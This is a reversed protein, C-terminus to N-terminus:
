QWGAFFAQGTESRALGWFAETIAVLASIDAGTWQKESRRRGWAWAGDGVERRVAIALADSIQPQGIHAIKRDIVAAQLSACAAGADHVTMMVPEIGRQQLPQILGRVPGIPDLILAPYVRDGIKVNRTPHRTVLDFLRDVVWGTGPAHDVLEVHPVGTTGTGAVAISARKGDPSVDVAWVKAGVITSPRACATWQEATIPPDDETAAEDWWGLRERGFEAPSLSRREAQIYKASIRRDLAPNSALWNARDDLACGISSAEHGCNLNLCGPEEWSGPACWEVYVLSPDGGNRGRAKLRRLVVSDAKGASSGYLIQPNPQASMVPFLAGMQGDTVAYAEDLITDPAALGRGGSESRARFKLRRGDLLIIEFTANSRLVQKVRKRLHDYNTVMGDFTTFSERATEFLHASWIILESGFVFLKTLAICELVFTKLNQRSCIVAGEMASWRGDADMACLAEVALRQEPDLIRGVSAAMEAVESLASESHEPV